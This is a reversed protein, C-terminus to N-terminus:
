REKFDDQGQHTEIDKLSRVENMNANPLDAVAFICSLNGQRDDPQARDDSILCLLVVDEREADLLLKLDHRLLTQL